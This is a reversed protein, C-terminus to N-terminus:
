IENLREFVAKNEKLAKDVVKELIQRREETMQSVGKTVRNIANM